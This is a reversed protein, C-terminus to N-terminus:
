KMKLRITLFDLSQLGLIMLYKLGKSIMCKKEFIEHIGGDAEIALKVRPCYFDVIFRNIPHQRRFSLGLIQNKTLRAWVIKEAETETKRLEKARQFIDPTAGFYMPYEIGITKMKGKKFERLDQRRLELTGWNPSKPPLFVRIRDNILYYFV